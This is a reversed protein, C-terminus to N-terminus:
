RSLVKRNDNAVRTQGIDARRGAEAGRSVGSNSSYRVTKAKGLHSFHEAHYADVQTKRDALVLATGTTGSQEEHEVVQQAQAARLRAAVTNAFSFMWSRRISRLNPKDRGSIWADFKDDETAQVHVLQRTAQLLLSTYLLEAREIDSEFGLLTVEYIKQGRGKYVWRGGFASMIWGLLNAKAKSYPDDITITKRGITDRTKGAAYALAEDLGHRTILERAKANYIEAEAETSAGEAKALLKRVRDLRDASPTTDSM